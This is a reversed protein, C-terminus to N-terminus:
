GHNEILKDIKFSFATKSILTDIFNRNSIGLIKNMYPGFQSISSDIVSKGILSDYKVKELSVKGIDKVTYCGKRVKLTEGNKLHIKKM